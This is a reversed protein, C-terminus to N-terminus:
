RLRDPGVGSGRGSGADSGASGMGPIGIPIQPFSSTAAAPPLTRQDPRLEQDESRHEVVEQTRKIDASLRGLDADGARAIESWGKGARFDAVIEDMPRKTMTALRHAIMLEGWGLGTRAREERLTAVSIRLTRSLHGVVVRDGDPERAAREIAEAREELTSPDASWVISANLVSVVVALLAVISRM